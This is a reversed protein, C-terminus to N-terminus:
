ARNGPRNRGGLVQDIAERLDGPLCPKELIKLVNRARARRELEADTAGTVLLVPVAATRPDNQIREVVALGDLGGPLLLDTVIVDPVLAAAKRIAQDANEALEVAFGAQGLAMAYLERTDRDDDAILIVPRKDPV